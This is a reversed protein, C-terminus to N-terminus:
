KTYIWAKASMGNKLEPYQKEDFRIKVDFNKVERKDSINFVVGAEHSTPSVEDVVGNFQKSGFADITFVAQQGVAIDSLGKDEEVQAVVRLDQPNIITVIPENPSFNEGINNKTQIILGQTATKIVEDGVQAVATDAPVVDGNKVFIVKLEGGRSSSLAVEPASIEAKEIYVQNKTAQWYFLGVLGAVIIAVGVIVLIGSKKKIKNNKSDELNEM